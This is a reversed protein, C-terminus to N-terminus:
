PSGARHRSGIWTALALVAILVGALIANRYQWLRVGGIGVRFWASGLEGRDLTDARYAASVAQLDACTQCPCRSVRRRWRPDAPRPDNGGGHARIGRRPHGRDGQRGHVHARLATKDHVL